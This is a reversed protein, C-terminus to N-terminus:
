VFDGAEEKKKSYYKVIEGLEEQNFEKEMIEKGKLYITKFVGLNDNLGYKKVLDDLFIFIGLAYGEENLFLQNFNNIIFEDPEISAFLAYALPHTDLKKIKKFHESSRYFEHTSLISFYSIESINKILFRKISKESLDINSDIFKELFIHNLYFIKLAITPSIDKKFDNLLNNKFKDIIRFQDYIRRYGDVSSVSVFGKVSLFDKVKKYFKMIEKPKNYYFFKLYELDFYNKCYFKSLM